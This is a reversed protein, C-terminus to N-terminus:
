LLETFLFYHFYLTELKVQLSTINNLDRRRQKINEFEPSNGKQKHQNGAVKRERVLLYRQFNEIDDFCTCVGNSGSYNSRELESLRRVVIEDSLIGVGGTSLRWDGLRWLISNMFTTAIGIYWYDYWPICLSWNPNGDKLAIHLLICICRTHTKSNDKMDNWDPILKM